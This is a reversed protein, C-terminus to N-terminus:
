KERDRTEWTRQTEYDGEREIDREREVEKGHGNSGLVMQDLMMHSKLKDSQGRVAGWFVKVKVPYPYGVRM